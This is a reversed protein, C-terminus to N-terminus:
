EKAISSIFDRMQRIADLLGVYDESSASSLHLNHTKKIMEVLFQIFFLTEKPLEEVNLSSRMEYLVDTVKTLNKYKGEHDEAEFCKKAQYVLKMIEDFIFIMQDM